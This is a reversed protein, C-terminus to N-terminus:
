LRPGTRPFLTAGRGRDGVKIRGGQEGASSRGRPGAGPEVGRGRPRSGRGGRVRGQPPRLSGLSSADHCRREASAAPHAPHPAPDSPRDQAALPLAPARPCRGSRPGSVGAPTTRPVQEARPRLAGFLEGRKDVRESSPPLGTGSGREPPPM